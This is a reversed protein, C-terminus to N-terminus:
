MIVAQIERILALVRNSQMHCRMATELMCNSEPMKEPERQHACIQERMDLLNLICEMLIKDTELIYGNMSQQIPKECVPTGTNENYPM